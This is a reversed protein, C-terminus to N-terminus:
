LRRLRGSGNHDDDDLRKLREMQRDFAEKMMAQMQTFAAEKREREKRADEHEDIARRANMDAELYLVAARSIATLADGKRLMANIMRRLSRRQVGAVVGITGIVIILPLFARGWLMLGAKDAAAPDHWHLLFVQLLATSANALLVFLGFTVTFAIDGTTKLGEHLREGVLIALMEFIFEAFPFLFLLATGFLGSVQFVTQMDQALGLGLLIVGVSGGWTVATYAIAFLARKQVSEEENPANVIQAQLFEHPTPAQGNQSVPLASGPPQTQAGPFTLVKGAGRRLWGLPNKLAM